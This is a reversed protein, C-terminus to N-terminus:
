PDVISVVDGIAVRSDGVLLEASGSKFSVESVVGTVSSSVAVPQGSESKASLAFGYTGDAVRQGTADTGDWQFTHLGAGRDVLELTRVTNGASDRISVTVNKAPTTLTFTAQAQGGANLTLHNADATVKRGILSTAQMGAMGTTEARLLGLSQDLSTLREVSTLTALQTIMERSDMPNLPDQNKLQAVLLKMFDQKGMQSTPNIPAASTTPNPPAANQARTPEIAM